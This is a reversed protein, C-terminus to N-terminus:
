WIRHDANSLTHSLPLSRVMNDSVVLQKVSTSIRPFSGSLMPNSNALLYELGPLMGVVDPISGSLSGFSSLDLIVIASLMGLEPLLTGSLSTSSLSLESMQTLSGLEPLLTGSLINSNMQLISLASLLRLEKPLTGALSNAYLGLSTVNGGADCNVGHWTCHSTSNDLWNTKFLWNNGNTAAYLARLAQQQM